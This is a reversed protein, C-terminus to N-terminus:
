LSEKIPIIGLKYKINYNLEFIKCYKKLNNNSYLQQHYSLFCIGSIQKLPQVKTISYSNLLLMVGHLM